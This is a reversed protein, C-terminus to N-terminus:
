PRTAVRVCNRGERKARYLMADARGVVDGWGTEEGANRYAAGVSVNLTLRTGEHEVTAAAVAARIREGLLAVKEPEVSSAVVVFEEGGYRFTEADGRVSERVASAVTALVRDGVAHGHRDNFSKFHDVDAMFVGYPDPRAHLREIAEEFSRRNGVGTLADTAAKDALRANAAELEANKRALEEQLALIRRGVGLRASLEGPVFPKTLFDDAGAELGAVIHETDGRSTLLLVYVYQAQLSARIRRCLGPGDLRPMEWDSILLGARERELLTWAEEGDSAALVEYGRRELTRRLLLQTSREDDAIVIKMREGVM